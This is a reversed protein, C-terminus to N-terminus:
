SRCKMVAGTGGRLHAQKTRQNEAPLSPARGFIRNDTWVACSGAWNAAGLQESLVQM